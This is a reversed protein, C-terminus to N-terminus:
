SYALDGEFAPDQEGEAEPVEGDEAPVAEPAVQEPDAAAAPDAVPAAAQDSVQATAPAADLTASSSMGMEKRSDTIGLYSNLVADADVCAVRADDYASRQVATASAWSDVLLEAATAPVQSAAQQAAAEAEAYVGSIGDAGEIDGNAIATDFEVLVSVQNIRQELYVDLVTLDADPFAERAAAVYNRATGLDTLAENDLQVIGWLDFESTDWDNDFAERYANYQDLGAQIRTNASAISEYALELSELAAASQTDTSLLMRGVELMSRRANVSAKVAVIADMEDENLLDSSREAETAYEEAQTLTTSTSTSRLMLNSLSESATGSSIESAIATDLPVIVSDSERLCDIAADINARADATQKYRLGFFAGVFLLALVLVVIIAILIGRKGGKEAFSTDFLGGRRDEEVERIPYLGSSAGGSAVDAGGAFADPSTGTQEAAKRAAVLPNRPAAPQSDAAPAASIGSSAAVALFVDTESPTAARSNPVPMSPDVSTQSGNPSAFLGPYSANPNTAMSDAPQNRYGTYGAAPRQLPAQDNDPASSFHSGTGNKAACM